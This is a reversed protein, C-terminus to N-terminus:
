TPKMERILELAEYDNPEPLKFTRSYYDLWKKSEEDYIKYLIRYEFMDGFKQMHLYAKLKYKGLKGLDINGTKWNETKKSWKISDKVDQKQHKAEKEKIKQLQWMWHEFQGTIKGRYVASKGTRAEFVEMKNTLRKNWVMGKKYKAEKPM